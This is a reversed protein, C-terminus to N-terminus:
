AGRLAATLPMRAARLAPLFGGLMGMVASFVLGTLAAMPTLRFAWAVEAFGATNGTAATLGNAPLALACGLLGGGLALLTSEIVISILVILRSFGLVRLTGIERTRTTVIAHMTNMAGFIAGFGMVIGVFWALALLPTTVTSSQAEYFARERVLQLRTKPNARIERDFADLTSPDSLRVVLASQGGERQFTPAVVDLDGWMESEFAGGDAAFAGVVQWDRRQIRVKAGVVLGRVRERVREGVILEYLGPQPKRGEIVRIGGRVAFAKTTIGRLTVNTPEGNSKKPLNAMVVVERSALPQGMADRMIRPDVMLSDAQDKAFFSVPESAAGRLLVIANDDRGTARLTARFGAAMAHLTVFAMVVFAIGVMALINVRWRVVLNRLNYALLLTM